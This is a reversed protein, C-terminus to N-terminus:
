IYFRILYPSGATSEQQVIKGYLILCTQNGEHLRWKVNEEAESMKVENDDVAKAFGVSM